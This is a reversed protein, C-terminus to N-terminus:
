LECYEERVLYFVLALDLQWSANNNVIGFFYTILYFIFYDFFYTQNEM